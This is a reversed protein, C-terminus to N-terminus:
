LNEKKIKLKMINYDFFIILIIKKKYGFMIIRDFIEYIRLWLQEIVVIRNMDVYNLINNLGWM